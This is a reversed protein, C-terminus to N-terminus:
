EVRAIIGGGPLGVIQAAGQTTVARWREDTRRLWVHDSRGGAVARVLARDGAIVPGYLQHCQAGHRIPVGAIVPGKVGGGGRFRSSVLDTFGPPAVPMSDPALRIVEREVCRPPPLTRGALGAVAAALVAPIENRPNPVCGALMASALLASGIRM